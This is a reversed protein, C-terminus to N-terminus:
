GGCVLVGRLYEEPASDIMTKCSTQSVNLREQTREAATTLEARSQVKWGSEALKDDIIGRAREEPTTM